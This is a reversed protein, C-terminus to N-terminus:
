ECVFPASCLYCEKIRYISSFSCRLWTNPLLVLLVASMSWVHVNRIISQRVGELGEETCSLVELHTTKGCEKMRACLKKLEERALPHEKLGWYKAKSNKSAEFIEAANKVTLDNYTLMVILEPANTM